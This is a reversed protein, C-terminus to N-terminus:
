GGADLAVPRTESWDVILARKAMRWGAPTRVFRDQYRIAWVVASTKRSDGDPRLIHNATCYTEGVAEDGTISVIQNHVQHQTLLYMQRLIGPSQQAQDLGRSVFGPGELEVDEALVQELLAPDDRDMAQAYLLALKLLESEEANRGIATSM